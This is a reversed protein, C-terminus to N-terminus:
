LEHIQTKLFQSTIWRGRIMITYFYKAGEPIDDTNFNYYYLENPNPNAVPNIVNMGNYDSHIENKDADLWIVAFTNSDFYTYYIKVPYPITGGDFPFDYFDFDIRSQSTDSISFTTNAPLPFDNGLNFGRNFLIENNADLIKASMQKNLISTYIRLDVDAFDLRHNDSNYAALIADKTFTWGKADEDEIRISEIEEYNTDESLSIKFAATGSFSNSVTSFSRGLHSNHTMSLDFQVTNIRQENTDGSDSSSSCAALLLLPILAFYFLKM